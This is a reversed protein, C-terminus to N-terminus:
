YIITNNEYVIINYKNISEEHFEEVTKIRNFIIRSLLLMSSMPEDSKIFNDYCQYHLYKFYKEKIFEFNSEVHKNYNNLTLTANWEKYTDYQIGDYNFKKNNYFNRYKKYFSRRLKNNYHVAQNYPKIINTFKGIVNNLKEQM